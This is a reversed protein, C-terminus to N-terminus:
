GAPPEERSYIPRVAAPSSRCRTCRCGSAHTAGSRCGAFRAGGDRRCRRLGARQGDSDAPRIGRGRKRDARALASESVVAVLEGGPRDDSDAISRGARMPAGVLSFFGGSVLEGAVVRSEGRRPGDGRADLLRRSRDLRAAGQPLRRLGPVAPQSQDRHQPDRPRDVLEDPRELPLPRFVVANLLSFVMAPLTIGIVLSTVAVTTVAPRRRIMRWGYGLDRVFAEMGCRLRRGVNPFFSALAQRWFWRHAAHAGGRAAIAAHDEVFDGFVAEADDDSLSIRMLWQALRPPRSAQRPTM